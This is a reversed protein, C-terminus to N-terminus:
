PSTGLRQPTECRINYNSRACVSYAAAQYDSAQRRSDTLNIVSALPVKPAEPDEPHQLGLPAPHAFVTHDPSHPM